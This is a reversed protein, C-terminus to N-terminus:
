PATKAAPPAAPTHPRPLDRTPTGSGAIYRARLVQGDPSGQVYGIIRGSADREFVILPAMGDPSFADESVPMLEGGVTLGSLTAVLHGNEFHVNDAVGDGIQYRGVFAALSTSDLAIPTPAQVIWTHSHQALLWRGDRRVYVELARTWSETSVNGLRRRDRRRYTVTAVDGLNRAHVSDITFEPPPNQAQSIAALFQPTQLPTGTAGIVWEMDDTIDKHVAASDGRAIADNRARILDAFTADSQHACAGLAIVGIWLFFRAIM